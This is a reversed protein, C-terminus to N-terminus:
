GFIADRPRVTVEKLCADLLDFVRDRAFNALFYKRGNEGLRKREDASLQLLREVCAALAASDGAACAFGANAEAVLKAGEGDLMALIPKGSALYSQLKGPVTLAFVPERRLSVLLADCAAFYSPMTELPKQGVFTVVDSLGRRLAEEQAWPAMRGDGVIVWHVEGKGKLCAAADLIAPLDQSAGISGAFLVRFGDPLGNLLASDSDLPPAEFVAEGWNPFYRLKARSVGLCEIQSFFGRSQVLVLDCHRYIWRMVRQAVALIPGEKVAGVAVLTEPWLDLAWYIMPAKFRWRALAGPIGVTAPSPAFVFTADFRAASPMLFLIAWCASIVFSLYNLALRVSGGKGRPIVPVRIVDAGAHRERYPGRWGYGDFFSGGPYNPLGTLVTVDNGREVLNAGLDNIRFNEPSFYQTIILIRV